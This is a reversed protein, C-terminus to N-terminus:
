RLPLMGLQRFMDLENFVAWFEVVKGGSIRFMEIAKVAVRRGTPSVGMFAGKHTGVASLLAVVLDGESVLSEVTIKWDPFAERWEFFVKELGAMGQPEGPPRAHDIYDQAYFERAADLSWNNWVEEMIRRILLKNDESSM